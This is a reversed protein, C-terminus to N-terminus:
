ANDSSSATRFERNNWQGPFVDTKIQEISSSEKERQYQQAYKLVGPIGEGSFGGGRNDGTAGEGGRGIDTDCVSHLTPKKKRCVEKTSSGATM